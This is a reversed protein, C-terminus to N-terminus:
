KMPIKILIKFGNDIPLIEFNGNNRRVRNRLNRIGNGANEKIPINKNELTESVEIYITNGIAKLEFIIHKSYSHKLINNAIEYICLKLDRYLEENILYKKDNSYKGELKIDTYRFQSIFFEKIDDELNEITKGKTDLAQMFTRLGFLADETAKQILSSNDKDPPLTSLFFVRTLITGVEDHLDMAIKNKLNIKQKSNEYRIYLIALILIFIISLIIMNFGDTRHFPLKSHIYITKFDIEDGIQNVLKLNVEHKKATLNSFKLINDKPLQNWEGDNLRFLIKYDQTNYNSTTLYLSLEEVGTIFKWEKESEKTTSVINIEKGKTKSYGTIKIRNSEDVENIMEPNIIDYMRLGGFVLKGNRLKLASKYNYEANYLGIEPYLKHIKRNEIDFCTIGNYTSAWVRNSNDEILATVRPHTLQKQSKIQINVQDNIPNILQIGTRTAVWLHGSNKHWLIDNSEETIPTGMIKNGKIETGDNQMITCFLGKDTAFYLKNTEEHHLIDYVSKGPVSIEKSENNRPNWIIIQEEGGMFFLSDNIISIDFLLDGEKINISKIPTTTEKILDYKGFGLGEASATYIANGFLTGGYAPSYDDNSESLTKNYPNYKYIKPFGLMYINGATDEIIKRRIRTRYEKTTSIDDIYESWVPNVYIVFVGQNTGLLLCTPSVAQITNILSYRLDRGAIFLNFRNHRISVDRNAFAYHQGGDSGENYYTIETNQPFNVEPQFTTDGDFEYMAGDAYFLLKGTQSQCFKGMIKDYGIVNCKKKTKLTKPDLILIGEDPTNLFLVGNAGFLKSKHSANFFGSAYIKGAKRAELLGDAFLVFLTDNTFEFSVIGKAKVWSLRNTEPDLRICGEDKSILFLHGGYLQIDHVANRSFFGPNSKQTINIVHSGDYRTLGGLTAIWSIGNDDQLIDTVHNNPLGTELDVIKAVKAQYTQACVGFHIHIILVFSYLISKIYDKSKIMITHTINAHIVRSINTAM